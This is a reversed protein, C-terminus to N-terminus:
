KKTEQRKKFEGNTKQMGYEKENIKTCRNKM